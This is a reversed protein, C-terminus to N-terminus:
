VYGLLMWLGIGLQTLTCIQSLVQKLEVFKVKTSFVVIL